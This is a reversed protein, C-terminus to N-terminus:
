FNRCAQVNLEIPALSREPCGTITPRNSIDKLLRRIEADNISMDKVQLNPYIILALWPDLPILYDPRKALSQFYKLREAQSADLPDEFLRNVRDLGNKKFENKIDESYIIRWESENYYKYDKPTVECMQKFFNHLFGNAPEFPPFFLSQTGNQMYFLPSGLRDFLFYRKFGIGLSGYENAHISSESLKLETFCTRATLPKIFKSNNVHLIEPKADKIMWLGYKLINRLRDLFQHNADGALKDIDKGTWHILFDSHIAREM